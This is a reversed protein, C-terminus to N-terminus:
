EVCALKGLDVTVDGMCTPLANAHTELWTWRKVHQKIPVVVRIRARSHHMAARCVYRRRGVLVSQMISKDKVGGQPEQKSVTTTYSSATPPQRHQRPVRFGNVSLWM